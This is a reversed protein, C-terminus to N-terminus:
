WGEPNAPPEAVEVAAPVDEASESEEGEAPADPEALV